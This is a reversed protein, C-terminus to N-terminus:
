NVAIGPSLGDSAQLPLPEQTTLVLHLGLTLVEGLEQASFDYKLTLFLRLRKLCPGLGQPMDDRAASEEAEEVDRPVAMEGAAARLGELVEAMSVDAPESALQAAYPLAANYKNIM